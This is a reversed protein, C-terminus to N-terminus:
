TSWSRKRMPLANMICNKLRSTLTPESTLLKSANARAAADSKVRPYATKYARTANLDKLYEDAFIQQKETM